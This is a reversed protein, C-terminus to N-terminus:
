EKGMTFLKYYHTTRIGTLEQQTENDTVMRTYFTEGIQKFLELNGKRIDSRNQASTLMKPVWCSSVKFMQIKEYINHIFRGESIGLEHALVSKLVVM